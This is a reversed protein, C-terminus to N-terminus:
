GLDHHMAFLALELRNSTGVKDFISTLHHKVTDESVGFQKAIEKNTHGGVVAKVVDLERATLNFPRRNAPRAQSGLVPTSSPGLARMAQLLGGIAEEGLWYGGEFVARISQFLVDSAADKLVVGRAGLQLAAIIDDRTISGTLVLTRVCVRGRGLARLADLGAVCPMALDLLLIDPREREVLHVTELGDAAGGVVCFGEQTQLLARLADRFLREDDAIAIRIGRRPGQM